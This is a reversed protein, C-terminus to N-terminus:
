EFRVELFTAPKEVKRRREEGRVQQSTMGSCKRGAQADAFILNLREDADAAHAFHIEGLVCTRRSCRYQFNQPRVQCCFRVGDLSKLAFGVRGPREIM